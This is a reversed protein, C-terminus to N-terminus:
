LYLFLDIDGRHVAKHCKSCLCIINEVNAAGGLAYDFLHHGEVNDTSGCIQCTYNDREKGLKQAKIHEYGRGVGMMRWHLNVVKIIDFCRAFTLTKKSFLSMKKNFCLM